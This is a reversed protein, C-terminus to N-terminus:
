EFYISRGTVVSHPCWGQTAVWSPASASQAPSPTNVAVCIQLVEQTFPSAPPSPWSLQGLPGDPDAARSRRLTCFFWRSQKHFFGSKQAGPELFEAETWIHPDWSVRMCAAWPWSCKWPGVPSVPSVALPGPPLLPASLLFYVSVQLCCFILDKSNFKVRIEAINIKVLM